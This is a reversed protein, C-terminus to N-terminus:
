LALEKVSASAIARDFLEMVMAHTTASNDNFAILRGRVTQFRRLGHKPLQRVLLRAAQKEVPLMKRHQILWGPADSALGLASLLCFSSPVAGNDHWGSKWWRYPNRLIRQARRLLIVEPPESPLNDFPM